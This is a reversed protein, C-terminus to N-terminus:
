APVVVSDGAALDGAVEVYGDQFVGTEVPVYATSGSADAVEVAYGGEALAVLARVPVMLVGARVESPVRVNAPGEILGGEPEETIAITVDIVLESDPGTGNRRATEGVDSVVAAAERGDALVVTVEEGEAFDGQDATSVTLTVSQTPTVTADASGDDAVADVVEELLAATIVTGGATVSNGRSEVSDVRIRGESFVVEGPDLSGDPSSQGLDEELAELAAATESTFEEDITISDGYGLRALNLELQLVDPGDDVGEELTRWAPLEGYLLVVPEEDVEFAVDGRGLDAGADPVGTLVGSGRAVISVADGYGLTGAYETYLEVDRQEVAVTSLEVGALDADADEGGGLLGLGGVAGAGVVLGAAGALAAARRTRSRQAGVVEAVEELTPAQTAQQADVAASM